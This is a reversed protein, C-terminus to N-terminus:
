PPLMGTTTAAGNFTDDRHLPGLQLPHRARRRQRMTLHHLGDANNNAASPTAFSAIARCHAVVGSVTRVTAPRELGPADVRHPRDRRPPAALRLDSLLHDVRDDIVRQM